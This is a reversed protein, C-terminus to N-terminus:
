IASAKGSGGRESITVYRFQVTNSDLNVEKDKCGRLQVALLVHSKSQSWLVRPHASILSLM